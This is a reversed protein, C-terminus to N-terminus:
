NAPVDTKAPGAMVGGHIHSDDISTGNHKVHGDSFDVNGKVALNGEITLTGDKMTATIGFAKLVNAALDSSPQQNLSSFGARFMMGQRPDGSPHIVGVIQGKSLPVWSATQGGSEPHPYWPSLYPTGDASTGFKLRYGKAADIEEVPGVKMSNGFATKLMEIDSQMRVLIDIM